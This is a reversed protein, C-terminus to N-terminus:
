APASRSALAEALWSRLQGEPAAGIQRALVAGDRLVVLTPISQAQFRQAIDPADDVNVKVLKLSGANERALTELAPSVMRCPGCWPAWLDVLVAIKSSDIIESFSADGLMSPLADVVWPLPLHCSACRPTGTARVPVRNKTGCNACAVVSSTSM